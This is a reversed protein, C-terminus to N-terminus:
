FVDVLNRPVGNILIINRDDSWVSFTTKGVTTAFIYDGFNPRIDVTGQCWNSTVSSVKASPQLTNGDDLSQTFFVDVLSSRLSRRVLGGGISVSCEIASPNAQTFKKVKRSQGGRGQRLQSRADM